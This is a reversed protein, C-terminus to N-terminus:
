RAEDQQSTAPRERAIMKEAWPTSHLNSAEVAKIIREHDRRVHKPMTNLAEYLGMSLTENRTRQRDVAALLGAQMAQVTIAALEPRDALVSAVLQAWEEPDIKETM